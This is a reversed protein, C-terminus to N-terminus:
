RLTETAADIGVSAVQAMFGHLEGADLDELGPLSVRSLPLSFVPNRTPLSTFCSVQFLFPVVYNVCMSM